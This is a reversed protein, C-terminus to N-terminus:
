RFITTNTCCFPYQTTKTASQIAHEIFCLMLIPYRLYLALEDQPEDEQEDQYEDEHEL